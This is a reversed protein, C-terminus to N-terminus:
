ERVDEKINDDLNPLARQLSNKREPTAATIDNASGERERM